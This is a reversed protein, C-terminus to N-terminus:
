AGTPEIAVLRIDYILDRRRLRNNGSRGYGESTPIVVRWHAGEDMLLLAERLGPVAIAELSFVAPEQDVETTDFVRGDPLSAEYRVLVSDSPRPKDGTGSELVEYQVGSPLTTVGTRQQNLAAFDDNYNGKRDPTVAPNREVSSAAITESAPQQPQVEPNDGVVAQTYALYGAAGVALAVGAVISIRM